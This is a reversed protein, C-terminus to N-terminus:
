AFFMRWRPRSGVARLRRRHAVRRGARRPAAPSASVRHKRPRSHSPGGPPPQARSPRPAPRSRTRAAALLRRHSECERPPHRPM